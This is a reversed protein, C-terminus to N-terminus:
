FDYRLKLALVDRQYKYLDINSRNDSHLFELRVSAKRTWRYSLSADIGYYDDRRRTAAFLDNDWYRSPTYNFGLSAGWKPAPTFSVVARLTVLGRSLDNRVPSAINRESGALAQLQLVPQLSGVFARRWGVGLGYFNSNREPSQPYELRALQGLLSFTNFENIQRHWEGGLAGVDRFRNSGVELTSLSATARWLDRDKVVSFGGYGSLTQLDFQKDESKGNFKGDYSAGGILSVGPAVPHSINGGAAVQFFEDRTKVGAPAVQIVGLTPVNIVQGSVGSNVNSDIGGGAELYFSSTTTYRTEQARISDMFRDITAQVNPPPNKKQVNEFEERARVLEGLVFYGRALELRARDNDPFQIVYRELALVGEGAHGADISAIGYYFDFDPKGLEEPHKQGLAYAEVSRGAEVLARLDDATAARASQLGIWGLLIAFLITRM